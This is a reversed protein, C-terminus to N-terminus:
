PQRLINHTGVRRLLVGEKVFQFTVRYNESVRIEWIDKGGEMKKVHLGPHRSDASFRKLAQNTRERIESSLHKYDRKFPETWFLQM